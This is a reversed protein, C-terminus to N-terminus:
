RRWEGVPPEVGYRKAHKLVMNQTLRIKQFIEEGKGKVFSNVQFGKDELQIGFNATLLRKYTEYQPTDENFFSGAKTMVLLIYIRCSSGLIDVEKSFKGVVTM